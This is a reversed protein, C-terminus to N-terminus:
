PPKLNSYRNLCHHEVENKGHAVKQLRFTTPWQTVKKKKCRLMFNNTLECLTLSFNLNLVRAAHRIM